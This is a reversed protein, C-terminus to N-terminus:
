GGVVHGGAAMEYELTMNGAVGEFLIESAGVKVRSILPKIAFMEFFREPYVRGFQGVIELELTDAQGVNIPNIMDAAQAVVAEGVWVGHFLESFKLEIEIPIVQTVRGNLLLRIEIICKFPLYSTSTNIETTETLVSGVRAWSVTATEKIFPESVSILQIKEAEEGPKGAKVAEEETAYKFHRTEKYGALIMKAPEEREYAQVIFNTALRSFVWLENLAPATPILQKYLLTSSVKEAPLVAQVIEIPQNVFM